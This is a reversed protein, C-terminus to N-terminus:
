QEPEERSPCLSALECRSCAPKRAHCIRRGHLILAMSTQSWAEEPWLAALDAEIKDPDTNRTLKLRQSLRKVHTDVTIAPLGFAEARVVNATKRGVGPLTVLDEMARPVEGGFRTSIAQAVGHISKAKARFFGTSYILKEIEPVPAAAFAAVTGFAAFLAPTVRNVRADTCQASLITAVLLEWPSEYTLACRAEPYL